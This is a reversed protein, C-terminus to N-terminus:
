RLGVQRADEQTELLDRADRALAEMEEVSDFDQQICDIANDVAVASNKLGLISLLDRLDILQQKTAATELLESVRSRKNPTWGTCTYDNQRESMVAGIGSLIGVKPCLDM